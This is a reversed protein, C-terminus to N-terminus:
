GRNHAGFPAQDPKEADREVLDITQDPFVASIKLRGGLGNVVEELTSLNLDNQHEIQSVRAQSIGLSAALDAQTIGRSERLETLASILMTTRAGQEVRAVRAPDLRNKASIERWPQTAMM